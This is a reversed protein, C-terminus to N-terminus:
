CLLFNFSYNKRKDPIHTNKLDMYIKYGLPTKGKRGPVEVMVMNPKNM